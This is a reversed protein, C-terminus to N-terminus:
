EVILNLQVKLDSESLLHNVLTDVAAIDGIKGLAEAAKARIEPVSDNLKGSLAKLAMQTHHLQEIM